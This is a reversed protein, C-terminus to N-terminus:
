LQMRAADGGVFRFEIQINRGNVLGIRASGANAGQDLGSSRSREGRLCESTWHSADQRTAARAGRAAMGGAGGLIAIFKRRRMPVEETRPDCGVVNDFFGHQADCCKLGGSKRLPDFGSHRGFARIDAEVLQPCGCLSIHFFHWSSSM